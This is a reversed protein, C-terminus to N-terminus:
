LQYNAAVFDFFVVSFPDLSVPSVLFFSVQPFSVSVLLYLALYFFRVSQCEGLSVYLIQSKLIFCSTCPVIVLAFVSTVVAAPRSTVLTYWSENFRFELLEDIRGVLVLATLVLAKEVTSYNLIYIILDLMKLFYVWVLLPSSHNIRAGLCLILPSEWRGFIKPCM